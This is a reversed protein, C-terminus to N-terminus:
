IKIMNYVKQFQMGSNVAFGEDNIRDGFFVSNKPDIDLLNLSKIGPKHYDHSYDGTFISNETNFYKALKLEEFKKRQLIPNGDTILFLSYNKKCEYLMSQVRHTLKLKPNYNRFITLARKIFETKNLDCNVGFKDYTEDFILPYSSGKELWRNKMFVFSDKGLIKSIEKYPQVIFEFEDYLTGDMDFGVHKIKKWNITNFLYNMM